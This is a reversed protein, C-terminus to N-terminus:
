RVGFYTFHGGPLQFARLEDLSYERGDWLDTFRADAPIGTAAHDFSLALPAVQRSVNGVVVVRRWPSPKEWEYWGCLVKPTSSTIAPKDEWLGHFCKADGLNAATRVAWYKEHFKYSVGIGWSQIDRVALPTVSHYALEDDSLTRQKLNAMSPVLATVRNNQIIFTYIVGAKYQNYDTLWKLEPIDECYGWEFNARCLSFTDEGPAFFDCFHTIPTFSTHCHILVDGGNRHCTKYCRLFFNRLGLADNTVFRQGFVDKGSCGHTENECYHVTSLDFYLGNYNPFRHMAEEAWYNWLDAAADTAEPCYFISKQADAGEGSTYTAGPVSLDNKDWFDSDPAADALYGPSTYYHNRVQRKANVKLFAEPDRPWAGFLYGVSDARKVTFAGGVLEYRAGKFHNYSLYRADRFRPPFPRSPTAQFVMTYSAPVALKVPRTVINLSATVRDATRMATLPNEGPQNAWNANSRTWFFLGRDIGSLWLVNGKRVGAKPLLSIAVKDEVWPTYNPDMAYRAWKEPMAYTIRLDQFALESAPALRWDLRYMGDFWLEATYQVPCGGVQGAGEFITRDPRTERMRWATWVAPRGDMKLTPQELLLEEGGATIQCPFPSLGDFRYLRNWVAFEKDSRQEVPTWPEPVTEDVSIKRRYPEMNPIRYPVSRELSGARAVLKGTGEPLDSPLALVVTERTKRATFATKVLTKGAADQLSVEGSLGTATLIAKVQEDANAFDLTTVLRGARNETNFSLELPFDVHFETKYSYLIADGRQAKIALTQAGAPLVLQWPKECLNGELAVEVGNLPCYAAAATVGASGGAALDLAGRELDGLSRIAFWEGQPLFRMKGTPGFMSDFIINSWRYYNFKSGTIATASVDFGWEGELVPFNVLPIDLRATWGKEGCEAKATLGEANWKPSGHSDYVAGAGNVIFQYRGGDPAQLHLEFSDDEWLKGDRERANCVQNPRDSHFILHLCQDDRWVDAYAHFTVSPGGQPKRLFCRAAQSEQTTWPIGVLHPTIKEQRPPFVDEYLGRIEVANLPRDYIQVLDFATQAEPIATSFYNGVWIRGKAPMPPLAFDDCAVDTRDNPLGKSKANFRPRGDVPTSPPNVGDLYFKLSHRDWTMALHHWTGKAWKGAGLHFQVQRVFPKEMEANNYYIQGIVFNEWENKNKLMRFFFQPAAVAIFSQLASDALDYNVMQFWIAITGQPANFNGEAPYWCRESNALLLANGGKKAGQFMRLQLDNEPFGQAQTRGKGFDAHQSYTDYTAEFLLGSPAALCFTALLLALAFHKKM